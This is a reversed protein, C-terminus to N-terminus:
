NMGLKLGDDSPTSAAMNASKSFEPEYKLGCLFKQASKYNNREVSNMNRNLTRRLGDTCAAIREANAGITAAGGISHRFLNDLRSRLETYENAQLAAPWAIAGTQRNLEADTLQYAAKYQALRSTENKSRRAALRGKREAALRDRNWARLNIWQRRNYNDLSRAYAFVVRAQSVSLWYNGRAYIVSALGRLYNGAATSDHHYSEGMHPPWPPVPQYHVPPLEYPNDTQQASSNTRWVLVLLLCASSLKTASM